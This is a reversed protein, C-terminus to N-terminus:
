TIIKKFNLYELFSWLNESRAADRSENVRLKINEKQEFNLKVPVM